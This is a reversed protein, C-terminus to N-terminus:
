RLDNTDILIISILLRVISILLRVESALYIRICQLTVTPNLIAMDAVNVGKGILSPVCKETVKVTM